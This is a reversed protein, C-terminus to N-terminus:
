PAIEAASTSMFEPATTVHWSPSPDSAVQEPEQSSPFGQVVSAQVSPAQVWVGTVLPVVHAFLLSHSRFLVQWAPTQVAPLVTVHM